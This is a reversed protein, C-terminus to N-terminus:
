IEFGEKILYDRLKNRIRSLRVSVSNYRLRLKGSIDSIGYGAWYRLMFMLRSEKGLTDLFDDIAKILENIEVSGQIDTDSSLCDALEDLAVDYYSNRKAATNSHYKAISINRAIQLAYAKLPNPRQPPVTNWIALYTDNLCEEADAENKLINKAIAKCASGYKSSLLAIAQEDRAYFLDVIKSDESM